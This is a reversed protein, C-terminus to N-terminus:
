GEFYGVNTMNDPIESKYEKVLIEKVHQVCAFKGNFHHLQRVVFDRKKTPNFIKVKYVYQDMNGQVYLSCYLSQDRSGAWKGVHTIRMEWGCFHPQTM